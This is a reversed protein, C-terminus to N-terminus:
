VHLVRGNRWIQSILRGCMYLQLCVLRVKVCMHLSFFYFIRGLYFHFTVCSSLFMNIPLTRFRLWKGMFGCEALKLRAWFWDAGRESLATMCMYATQCQPCPFLMFNIQCRPGLLPQVFLPGCCQPKNVCLHPQEFCTSNEQENKWCEIGGTSPVPLPWM